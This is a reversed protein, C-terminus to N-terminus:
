VTIGKEGPPITCNMLQVKHHLSNDLPLHFAQNTVMTALYYIVYYMAITLTLKKTSQRGLPRQLIDEM